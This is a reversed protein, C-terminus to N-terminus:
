KLFKQLWKPISNIVKNVINVVATFAVTATLSKWFLEIQDMFAKEIDTVKGTLGDRLNIGFYGIAFFFLAAILLGYGFKKTEVELTIERSAAIKNMEITETSNLRKQEFEM